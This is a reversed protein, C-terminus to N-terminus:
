LMEDPSFPALVNVLLRLMAPAEPESTTDPFAAGIPARWHLGGSANQEVRYASSAITGDILLAAEAALAKSRIVLAVESNTRQSRLDLNMSGIATLRRDIIVAKAHLSSQSAGVESGGVGSGLRPRVRRDHRGTAARPVSRMEHVEVGLALLDERYRRYGAHAAPADNSALSNTLLRVRVGRARMDSFVKMMPMGPVFYPSVMLVEHTAQQMLNLLGDVVTEGADAEDDVPGIKGPQDAILLSSAWLLPVGKLDMPQRQAFSVEASTVGPLVMGTVHDAPPPAAVEAGVAREAPQEGTDAHLRDLEAPSLLDPVPYALPDNWYRDFSASMDQVIRGAALVDLDVFNSKEGAGFYAQGLNRGGAIGWANDAIFLKNHMRKQIRELDHLSGLIRTVLSARPGAMPNFLRMEIGPEFALRLVQADDGVTNFDDLLIRVRVGRRAADRVSQLLVETSADAHIAYYQLDLSKQAAQALAVRSTFASDASDLLRFGSDSRTGAVVRRSQALRGLATHETAQFAHSATRPQQTPM